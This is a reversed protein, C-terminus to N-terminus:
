DIIVDSFNQFRESLIGNEIFQYIKDKNGLITPNIDNNILFSKIDAFEIDNISTM